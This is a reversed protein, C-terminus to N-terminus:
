DCWQLKPVRRDWSYPYPKAHGERMLIAGVDEGAARLTGCRRGYNCAMSGEPVTPACSCAVRELSLPKGSHVIDVLAAKAAYGKDVEADCKARPGTEPADFGVLRYAYGGVRITDGDTVYVSRPAVSETAEIELAATAGVTFPVVATALIHRLATRFTTM